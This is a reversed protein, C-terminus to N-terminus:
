QTEVENLSGYGLKSVARPQEATGSLPEAPKSLLEAAEPPQVATM